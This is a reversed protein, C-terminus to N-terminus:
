PHTEMNTDSNNGM